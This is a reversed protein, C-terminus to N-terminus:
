GAGPCPPPSPAYISSPTGQGTCTTDDGLWGAATRRVLVDIKVTAGPGFVLTVHDTWVQPDPTQTVTITMQQWTNQCRCLPEAGRTPHSDLRAALRSTVPCNDYRGGNAGCAVGAQSPYLFEGVHRAGEPDTFPVYYPTPQASPGPPPTATASPSPTPRASATPSPTPTPPATTDPGATQAPGTAVATRAESGGCAALTTAAVLTLVSLPLRRAPRM